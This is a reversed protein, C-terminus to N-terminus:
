ERGVDAVESGNRAIPPFQPDQGPFSMPAAHPSAGIMAKLEEYTLYLPEMPFGTSWLWWDAVTPPTPSIPFPFAPSFWQRVVSDNM